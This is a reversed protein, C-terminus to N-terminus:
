LFDYLLFLIEKGKASFYIGLLFGVNSYRKIFTLGNFAINDYRWLIEEVVGQQNRKSIAILSLRSEVMNHISLLYNTPKVM